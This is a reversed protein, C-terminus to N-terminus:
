VHRQGNGDIVVPFSVSMRQEKVKFSHQGVVFVVAILKDSAFELSLGSQQYLLDVYEDSRTFDDCQGFTRADTFAAGLKLGNVSRFRLDYILERKSHPPWDATPNPSRGFLKAISNFM